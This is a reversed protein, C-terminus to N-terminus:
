RNSDLLYEINLDGCILFEAKPKYLSKLAEDFLQLFLNFDGSPATNVCIILFCKDKSELQIACLEITKEECFKSLDVCNFSLNKQVFICIGGKQHRCRSFSAGLIYNELNIFGASLEPIHHETFCTVNPNLEEDMLSNIIEESKDLPGRINQHLLTLPNDFHHDLKEGNYAIGM